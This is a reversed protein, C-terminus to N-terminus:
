KFFLIMNTILLRSVKLGRSMWNRGKSFLTSSVLVGYHHWLYLTPIAQLTSKITIITLSTPIVNQVCFKFLQPYDHQTFCTLPKPNLINDILVSLRKAVMIHLHIPSQIPRPKGRTKAVLPQNVGHVMFDSWPLHGKKMTRSLSEVNM